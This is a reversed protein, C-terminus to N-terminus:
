TLNKDIYSLCSKIANGDGFINSNQKIKLDNNLIKVFLKSFINHSYNIKFIANDIERGNQRNGYLIIIKHLYPAEILFSSSNGILFLSNYLISIYNLKSSTKILNFYRSKSFIRYLDLIENSGIDNNPYNAFISIKNDIIEKIIKKINDIFYKERTIEPHLSLFVYPSKNLFKKEINNKKHKRLYNFIDDISCSGIRYINKKNITPIKRLRNEAKKTTVFHYNSFNSINYRFANDLSGDSIQGGSFHTIRIQKLYACQAVVLTELRDGLLFIQDKNSIHLEIFSDIKKTIITTELNKNHLRKSFTKLKFIKLNDFFNTFEELARKNEKLFHCSHFIINLNVRRTFSLKKLLSQIPYIDSPSGSFFFINNKSM